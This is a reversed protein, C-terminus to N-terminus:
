TAGEEREPLAYISEKVISIHFLVKELAHIDKYSYYVCSIGLLLLLQKQAGHINSIWSMLVWVIVFAVIVHTM